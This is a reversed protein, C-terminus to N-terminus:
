AASRRSRLMWVRTKLASRVASRLASRTVMGIVFAEPWADVIFTSIPVECVTLLAADEPASLWAASFAAPAVISAGAPLPPFAGGDSRGDPLKTESSCVRVEVQVAPASVSAM